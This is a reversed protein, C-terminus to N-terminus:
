EREAIATIPMEKSYLEITINGKNTELVVKKGGPSNNNITMTYAIIGLIVAILFIGIIVLAIGLLTHLLHNEEGLGIRSHFAHNALAIIWGAFMLVIGSYYLIKM